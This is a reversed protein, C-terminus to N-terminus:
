HSLARVDFSQDPPTASPTANAGHEVSVPLSLLTPGVHLKALTSRTYGRGAVLSQSLALYSEGDRTDFISFDLRPNPDVFYLLCLLLVLGSEWWNKGHSFRRTVRSLSRGIM